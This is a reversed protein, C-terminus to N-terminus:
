EFQKRSELLFEKLDGILYLKDNALYEDEINSIEEDTLLSDITDGFYDEVTWIEGDWTMENLENVLEEWAENADDNLHGVHNNGNWEVEHGNIIRQILSTAEESELYDQIKEGDMVQGFGLRETIDIGNWVDIPTANDDYEQSVWVKGTEPSITIYTECLKGTDRHYPDVEPLCDIGIIKPKTM